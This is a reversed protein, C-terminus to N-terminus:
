EEDHRYRPDDPWIQEGCLYQVKEETLVQRHREEAERDFMDELDRLRMVAGGEPEHIFVNETGCRWNFESTGIWASFGGTESDVHIEKVNTFWGIQWAENREWFECYMDASFRLRTILHAVPRFQKLTWSGISITDIDLNAWIYRRKAVKPNAGNAIVLDSFVRQYLNNNRAERCTQLVAPVPTPSSLHLVGRRIKRSPPHKLIDKSILGVQITRPEVTMEWIQLRLETPLLLFVHFISM